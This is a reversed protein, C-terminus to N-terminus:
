AGGPVDVTGGRQAIGYEGVVRAMEEPIDHEAGHGPEALIVGTQALRIGPEEIM